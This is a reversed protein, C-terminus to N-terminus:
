ALTDCSDMTADVLYVHTVFFCKAAFVATMQLVRTVCPLAIAGQGASYALCANDRGHADSLQLLVTGFQELPQLRDLDALAREFEGKPHHRKRVVPVPLDEGVHRCFFEFLDVVSKARLMALPMGRALDLNM